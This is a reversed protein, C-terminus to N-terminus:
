GNMRERILVARVFNGFQCIRKKGLLADPKGKIQALHREVMEQYRPHNVDKAIRSAEQCVAKWKEYQVQEAPTRPNKKYDRPDQGYMEKPGYGFISKGDPSKWAKRRMTIRSKKDFKGVVDEIGVSTEFRAMTKILNKCQVKQVKQVKQMKRGEFHLYHM